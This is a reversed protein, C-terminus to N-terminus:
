LQAQTEVRPAMGQHCSPTPPCFQAFLFLHLAFCLRQLGRRSTQINIISKQIEQRGLEKGRGWGKGEEEGGRVRRKGM